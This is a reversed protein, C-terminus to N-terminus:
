STLGLRKLARWAGRMASFPTTYNRSWLNDVHFESPPFIVIQWFDEMDALYIEWGKFKAVWDKFNGRIHIPEFIM